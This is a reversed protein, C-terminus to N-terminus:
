MSVKVKAQLTPSPSFFNFSQDASSSGYGNDSQFQLQKVAGEAPEPCARVGLFALFQKQEM